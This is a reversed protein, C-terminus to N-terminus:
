SRGAARPASAAKAVKGAAVTVTVSRYGKRSGTVKVTLRKGRYKSAVKYSAKTAGKIRKGAAYWQYRLTTHAPWRGKAVKVKLTAGVRARGSVALASPRKLAKLAPAPKRTAGGASPGSPTATAAPAPSASPAAGAGGEGGGGPQDQQPLEAVAMSQSTALAPAYGDAVATLQVSLWHGAAASPITYSSATADAIPQGDLLWQYGTTRADQSWTGAAADITAGVAFTGHMTPDTTALLTGLAVTQAASTAKVDDYGLAHVRVLVSLEHGYDAERVTYTSEAAAPLPEGDRLWQYAITAPAPSWAGPVAAIQEGVKVAGSITPTVDNFAGLAVTAADSDVALDAYGAKHYTVRLTLAGEADGPQITYEPQTQAAIPKGGLLWQYSPAGDDAPSSSGPRATVTAGVRVSGAIAPAADAVLTGPAVPVGVSVSQVHDYGGGDVTVRVSLARGAEDGAVAHTAATAGAIPSGDLLWQYGVDAPDPQPDWGDLRAGVTQGVRADGGISVDGPNVDGGVVSVSASQADAAAYGDKSAHVALAITEGVMAPTLKLTAGTQGDIAVGNALWRYAYADAQPSFGSTDATLTEGAKPTGAIQVAATKFAALPTLRYLPSTTVTGQDDTAEVYWAFPEGAVLTGAAPTVGAPTGSAVGHQEGLTALGLASVAVYDTSLVRDPATVGMPITFDAMSEDGMYNDGLTADTVSFEKKAITQRATDFDVTAMWGNGQNPQSQPDYLIEDLVRGDALTKTQWHESPWVHGSFVAVVNKNPQAIQSFIRQGIGVGDLPQETVYTGNQNTYEHTAVIVNARPHAQIVQNAWAIEDPTLYLDLYLFLYDAKPTSVVDYHQANDFQSGGYWPNGAYRDAGFFSQYTGYAPLQSDQSDSPGCGASSTYNCVTLDHNGEVVGYPFAADDWRQLAPSANTWQKADSAVDVIDGTLFGYGIKDAPAATSNHDLVWQTEKNFTVPNSESYFQTDTLWATKLTDGGDGFVAAPADQVLLRASGDVVTAAVDASGSLTMAGGDGTAAALTQWASTRTNWVALAARDGAPVSGSWKATFSTSGLDAPVKVDFRQYPYADSSRTVLSSGDGAADIGSADSVADGAGQGPAATTSSGQAAGSVGGDAADAVYGRKFVLDFTGALARSATIGLKAGSPDVGTAGDAPTVGSFSAKGGTTFGIQRTSDNGLKDTAGAVLTHAGPALEGPAITDGDAYATGDIKLTTAAVGSPDTATVDLTISQDATFAQGDHPTTFAIDPGHSDSTFDIMRTAGNGDGAGTATVTLRHDGDSLGALPASFAGSVQGLAVADGGDLAYSVSAPQDVTGSLKAAAGVTDDELPASIALLVHGSQTQSTPAATALRNSQALYEAKIWDASRAADSIRLEDYTFPTSTTTGANPTYSGLLFHILGSDAVAVTTPASAALTGDIYLRLMAGDYSQTFTHWGPSVASAADGTPTTVAGSGTYLSAYAHGNYILMSFQEGPHSGGYQDRGGIQHYSSDTAMASTVDVAASYTYHSLDDGIKDGFDIVGDSGNLTFGYTGSGSDQLYQGAGTAVSGNWGNQTSDDLTGEDSAFHNVSVYDADWVDTASTANLPTGDYYLRLTSAGAGVSPVKVWVSSTGHTNWREIEYPLPTDDGDALFVLHDPTAKAYDFDSTDFQALVPFNTLAGGVGPAQLTFQLRQEASPVQWDTPPGATPTPTVTPSATATPTPTAVDDQTQTASATLLRDTQSLYEAKVWDASRPEDSLRLEDYSFASNTTTGNNPTYAGLLFRLLSGGTPLATVGTLTEALTGDIYLKLTGSAGDFTQTFTHWGATVTSGADTNPTNKSPYQSAYVHGNYILLSFQEGPHAGSYRDRGGVQHYAGDTLMAATVDVTASYTYSSLASGVSTGFDVDGDIGNLAVALGGDQGDQGLGTTAENTGELTGDFGNATSDKLTTSTADFHNVAVFHGDWVDAPATANAPAGDGFYVDLRAAAGLAPAKVWVTSTGAPDWQEVEYPLPTADDGATFTLHQPDANTYDFTDPKLLVKLPFGALAAPAQVTMQMREPAAGVLWGPPAGSAGVAAAVAVGLVVALVAATAAALTRVLRPARM